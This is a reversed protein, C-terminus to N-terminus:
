ALMRRVLQPASELGFKSNLNKIHGNALAGQYRTKEADRRALQQIARQLTQKVATPLARPQLKGGILNLLADYAHEASPLALIHDIDTPRSGKESMWDYLAQLVNDPTDGHDLALKLRLYAPSLIGTPNTPGSLDAFQAVFGRARGPPKTAAAQTRTTDLHDTDHYAPM